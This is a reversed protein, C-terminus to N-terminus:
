PLRDARSSRPAPESDQRERRGGEVGLNSDTRTGCNRPTLEAGARECFERFIVNIEARGARDVRRSSGGSILLWGVLM